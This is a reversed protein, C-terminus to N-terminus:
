QIKAAFRKSLSKCNGKNSLKSRNSKFFAEIVFKSQLKSQMKRSKSNFSSSNSIQIEITM